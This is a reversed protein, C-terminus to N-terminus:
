HHVTLFINLQFKQVYKRFINLYLIANFDTGHPGLQKM